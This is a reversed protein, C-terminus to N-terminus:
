TQGVVKLLLPTKKQDKGNGHHIETLALRTTRGRMVLIGTRARADARTNGGGACCIGFLVSLMVIVSVDHHVHQKLKAHHTKM